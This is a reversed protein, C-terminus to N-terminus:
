TLHHMLIDKSMRQAYFSSLLEHINLSGSTAAKGSISNELKELPASSIHDAIKEQLSSLKQKTADDQNELVVEFKSLQEAM